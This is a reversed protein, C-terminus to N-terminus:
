PQEILEVELTELIGDGGPIGEPIELPRNFKCVMAGYVPHVFDFDKYLYHERYFDEFAGLNRSLNVTLDLAGGSTLFYQMAQLKLVFIRQDPATPGATFAYSNGFAVRLGNDPYRTTWSYYEPLFVAM